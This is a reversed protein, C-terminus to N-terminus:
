YRKLQGIRVGNITMKPAKKVTFLYKNQSTDYSSLKLRTKLPSFLRPILTIDIQALNMKIANLQVKPKTM